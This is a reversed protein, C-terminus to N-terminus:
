LNPQFVPFQLPSFGQPHGGWIWVSPGSFCGLPIQSEDDRCLSLPSCSSWGLSPFVVQIVKHFPFFRLGSSTVVQLVFISPKYSRHVDVFPSFFEVGLVKDVVSSSSGFVLLLVVDGAVGRPLGLARRRCQCGSGQWTSTRRAVPPMRIVCHATQRMGACIARQDRVGLAFLSSMLKLTHQQLISTTVGKQEKETPSRQASRSM